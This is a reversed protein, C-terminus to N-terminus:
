MEGGESRDRFRPTGGDVVTDFSGRNERGGDRVAALGDDAAGEAGAGITKLKAASKM